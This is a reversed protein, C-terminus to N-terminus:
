SSSISADELLEENVHVGAYLFVFNLQCEVYTM